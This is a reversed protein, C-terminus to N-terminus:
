SVRALLRFPHLFETLLPHSFPYSCILFIPLLNFPLAFQASVLDYVEHGYDFDEITDSIM